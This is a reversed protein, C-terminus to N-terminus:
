RKFRTPPKNCCAPPPSKANDRANMDMNQFWGAKVQGWWSVATPYGIATLRRLVSQYDCDTVLYSVVVKNRATDSSVARVGPLQNLGEKVRSEDAEDRLGQLRFSRKVEFTSDIETQRANTM